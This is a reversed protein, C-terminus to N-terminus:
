VFVDMQKREYGSVPLVLELVVVGDVNFGNFDHPTEVIRQLGTAVRAMFKLTEKDTYQKAEEGM